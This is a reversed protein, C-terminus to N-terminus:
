SMVDTLLSGHSMDRVIVGEPVVEYAFVWGEFVTCRLGADRWPLFRCLAHSVPAALSAVFRQMRGTRADAASQSMGYEQTLFRNLDSIKDKVERSILVSRM